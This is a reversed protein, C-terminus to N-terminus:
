PLCDDEDPAGNFGGRDLEGQDRGADRDDRRDGHRATDTPRTGSARSDHGDVDTRESQTTPRTSM